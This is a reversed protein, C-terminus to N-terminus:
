KNLPNIKGCEKLWYKHYGEIQTDLEIPKNFYTRHVSTLIIGSM